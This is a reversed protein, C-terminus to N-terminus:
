VFKYYGAHVWIISWCLVPENVCLAHVREGYVRVGVQPFVFMEVGAEACQALLAKTLATGEDDYCWAGISGSQRVSLPTLTM